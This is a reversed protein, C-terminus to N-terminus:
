DDILDDGDVDEKVDNSFTHITGDQTVCRIVTIMRQSFVDKTTVAGTDANEESTSLEKNHYEKKMSSGRVVHPGHPGPVVGDLMGSALILGLHGKDLPLPPRKLSLPAVDNFHVRLPSEALVEALEEDTFATKRFTNPKWGHPIEWVHIAEHREYSPYGGRWSIPQCDGLPPLNEIRVYNRWQWERQHMEGLSSIKDRPLVQRRKAGFLVVENYPRCSDPFKYVQVNEYNADIFEVFGRNGILTNMPCVLVLIGKPVLLRTSQQVFAQEERRGGGMEDDFPPNCYVLGYSFGTIQVGLFTAPGLLNIGPINERIAKTRGLDLEVAYTHDFPVELGEAIQKIAMGEGACPDLIFQFQRKAEALRLHKLIGAIAEPAAPYYGCKAQGALRVNRV